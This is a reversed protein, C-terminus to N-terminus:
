FEKHNGEFHLEIIKDIKEPTLPKSYYESIEQFTQSKEDDEPNVSTTLMVIVNSARQHKPLSKYEELFDWGNIGPMNIDLFILDPKPNENRDVSELYELAEEGSQVAVIKEVKGTKKLIITNIFNTPEDDDVLLICKLKEM